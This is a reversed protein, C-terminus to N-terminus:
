EERGTSIRSFLLTNRLWEMKEMSLSNLVKNCSLAHVLKNGDFAVNAGLNNHRYVIEAWTTASL